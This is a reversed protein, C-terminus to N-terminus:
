VVTADANATAMGDAVLWPTRGCVVAEVTWGARLWAFACPPRRTVEKCKM